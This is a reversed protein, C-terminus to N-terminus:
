PDVPVDMPRRVVRNPARPDDAIRASMVVLRRAEDWAQEDLAVGVAGLRASRNRRRPLSAGGASLPKRAGIRYFTANGGVSIDVRAQYSTPRGEVLSAILTTKRVERPSFVQSLGLYSENSVEHECRRFERRAPRPDEHRGAGIGGGSALCACRTGPLGISPDRRIIGAALDKRFGVAM